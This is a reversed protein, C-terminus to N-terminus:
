GYKRKGKIHPNPSGKGLKQQSPKGPGFKQMKQKLKQKIKVVYRYAVGFSSMDLFEM